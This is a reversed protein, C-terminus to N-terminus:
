ETDEADTSFLNIVPVISMLLGWCFDVGKKMRLVRFIGGAIISPQTWYHCRPMGVDGKSDNNM